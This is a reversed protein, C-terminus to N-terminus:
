GAKFCTPLMCDAWSAVLCFFTVLSLLLMSSIQPSVKEFGADFGVFWAPPPNLAKLSMKPSDLGM